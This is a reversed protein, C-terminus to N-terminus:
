AAGDHGRIVKMWEFFYPMASTNTVVCLDRLSNSLGDWDYHSVPKPIWRTNDPFRNKATFCSYCSTVSSEPSATTGTIVDVVPIDTWFCGHCMANHNEGAFPFDEPFRFSLAVLVPMFITRRGCHRCVFHDRTFIKWRMKLPVKGTDPAGKNPTKTLRLLQHQAVQNQGMLVARVTESLLHASDINKDMLRGNYAGAELPALLGSYDITVIFFPSGPPPSGRPVALPPSPLAM